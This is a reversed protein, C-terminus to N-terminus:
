RNVLDRIFITALVALSEFDILKTANADFLVIARAPFEEDRDYFVIQVLIHPLTEFVLSLGGMGAEGERRGGLFKAAAM